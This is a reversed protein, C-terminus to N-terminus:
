RRRTPRSGAAVGDPLSSGFGLVVSEGDDDVDDAAATFTFTKSTETAAFTVSDPVGSYDSNGAGGQNTATLDVEVQREPAASLM